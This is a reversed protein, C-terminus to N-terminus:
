EALRWPFATWIRATFDGGATILRSGDTSFTAAYVANDHPTLTFLQHGSGVDWFLMRYERSFSAQLDMGGAATVLRQGDFKL